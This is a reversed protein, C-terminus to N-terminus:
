CHLNSSGCLKCRTAWEVAFRQWVGLLRVETGDDNLFDAGNLWAYMYMYSNGFLPIFGASSSQIMKQKYHVFHDPISFEAGEAYSVVVPPM